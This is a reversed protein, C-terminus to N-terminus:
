FSTNAATSVALAHVRKVRAARGGAKLRSKASRCARVEAATRLSRCHRGKKQACSSLTEKAKKDAPAAKRLADAAPAAPAAVADRLGRTLPANHRPNLYGYSTEIFDQFGPDSYVASGALKAADAATEQAPASAGCLLGLLVAFMLKKFM